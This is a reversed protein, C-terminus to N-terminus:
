ALDWQAAIATESDLAATLMKGGFIFNDIIDGGMVAYLGPTDRIIEADRRMREMDATGSGIHQDTLFCVGVANQGPFRITARNKNAHAQLNKRTREELGGWLEKADLGNPVDPREVVVADFLQMEKARFKYRTFTGLKVGMKKAADEDSYGQALLNAARMEVTVSGKKGQM